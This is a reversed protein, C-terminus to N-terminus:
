AAPTEQPQPTDILSGTLDALQDLRGAERRIADAQSKLMRVTYEPDAALKNLLAVQEGLRRGSWTANIDIGSAETFETVKDRIEELSRRLAADGNTREFEARAALRGEERGQARATQLAYVGCDLAARFMGITAPWPLPEPKHEVPKIAVTPKANPTCSLLGWGEPWGGTAGFLDPAAPVIKAALAAPVAIWFRHVHRWWWDAKGPDVMERRLDAMSVKIEVGDLKLGRSKWTSLVVVDLKRGSRDSTTPAERIHVYEEPSWMRHLAQAVDGATMSPATM